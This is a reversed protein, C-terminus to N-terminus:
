RTGLDDAAAAAAKVGADNYFEIRRGGVRRVVRWGHRRAFESLQEETLSLFLKMESPHTIFHEPREALRRLIVRAIPGLASLDDDM